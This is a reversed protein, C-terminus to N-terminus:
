RSWVALRLLDNPDPSSVPPLVVGSGARAETSASASEPEPDPPEVVVGRVAARLLANLDPVARHLVPDQTMPIDNM